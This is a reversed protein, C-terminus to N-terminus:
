GRTWAVGGTSREGGGVGCWVCEGTKTLLLSMGWAVSLVSCIFCVQVFLMERRKRVKFIKSMITKKSPSEADDREM